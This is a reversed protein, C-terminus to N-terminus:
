KINENQEEEQRVEEIMSDVDRPDFYLKIIDERSLGCQILFRLCDNPSELECFRDILLDTVRKYLSEM